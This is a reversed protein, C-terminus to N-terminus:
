VETIRKQRKLFLFKRILKAEDQVTLLILKKPCHRWMKKAKCRKLYNAHNFEKPGIGNEMRTFGKEPKEVKM